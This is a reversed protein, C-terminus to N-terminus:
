IPYLHQKIGAIRQDTFMENFDTTAASGTFKGSFITLSRLRESSSCGITNNIKVDEIELFPFHVSDTKGNMLVKFSGDEAYKVEIKAPPECKHIISM